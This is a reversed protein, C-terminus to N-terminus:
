ARRRAFLKLGWTDDDTNAFSVKVIDNAQIPIMEDPSLIELYDSVGNMPITYLNSDFYNGAEADVDITLDEATGCSASSGSGDTLTLHFGCFFWPENFSLGPFALDATTFTEATYSDCLIDFSNTAVTEIVRLGDYNTTGQIFIHTPEKFWNQSKLFGHDNSPITAIARGPNSADTSGAANLTTNMEENGAFFYTELPGYGQARM